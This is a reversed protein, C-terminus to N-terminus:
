EATKRASTTELRRILKLFLFGWVLGMIMGFLVDSPYHVGNYVRSYAVLGALGVLPIKAAPFFESTYVAFTMMNSSHNSYFSAGGADTRPVVQLATNENPRAREFVHKIRGGTWDSFGVALLLIVFKIIGQKKYRYIYFFLVLLPAIFKFGTIKNLDSLWYFIFDTLSSTWRQNIQALLWYDLQLILEQM